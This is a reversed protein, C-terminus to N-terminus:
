TLNKTELYSIISYHLDSPISYDKRNKYPNYEALVDDVTSYGTLFPIFNLMSKVSASWEILNDLSELLTLEVAYGDTVTDSRWMELALTAIDEPNANSKVFTQFQQVKDLHNIMTTYAPSNEESIKGLNRLDTFHTKTYEVLKRYEDQKEPVLSFNYLFAVQNLKAALQRATNWQILINSMTITGNNLQAFFKNIHKFDKFYKSSSQSVKLIRIDDNKFYHACRFAESCNVGYSKLLDHDNYMFGSSYTESEARPFVISEQRTDRTLLAVFELTKIDVENGYYIEAVNWNNIEAMPVELKQWEYLRSEYANNNANVSNSYYSSNIGSVTVKSRPTNVILKGELKRREERSLSAAKLEEDSLTETDQEEEEVDTGKFDEPVEINEYVLPISSKLLEAWILETNNVKADFEQPTLVLKGGSVLEFDTQKADKVGNELDFWFPKDIVLLKDYLSLLYKDKRNSTTSSKVVITTESFDWMSKAYVRKIKTKVKNRERTTEYQVKRIRLFDFITPTLRIETQAFYPSVQTIDIIQSLRGLVSNRDLSSSISACKRIWNVIDPESSLEKQVLATASVQTDKFRTLIMAKTQESWVLSERSPTVEVDEPQVKIGINGNKNELELESFNIFGYNVRNILIHPKDYYRNDSLLIFDDEYLINSKVPIQTSSSPTEVTFVINDFYTLQSKVADEYESKHHKKADIIITVGNFETTKEAYLSIGGMKFETNETGTILNMKPIISEVKGNYVMFRFLFGNYRSEVTYHSNVSLPAKNGLGFKGLPLKSLRKTSYGLNFYKELRYQGLGVGNDKITVFDKELDSNAHYTIYVNPDTSFWNLDYYSPDFKSDKYMDGEMDVFYDEVKAKGTLIERAVEREKISDIGNSTIERISSRIPFQYQYRQLIEMMLSMAGEDIQKKFGGEIETQSQQLIAM